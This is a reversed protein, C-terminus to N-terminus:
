GPVMGVREGVHRSPGVCKPSQRGGSTNWGDELRVAQRVMFLHRTGRNAQLGRWLERWVVRDWGPRACYERRPDGSGGRLDCEQDGRPLRVEGSSAESSFGVLAKLEGGAPREIAGRIGSLGELQSARRAPDALSFPEPERGDGGGVDSAHLAHRIALIRRTDAGVASPRQGRYRGAERRCALGDRVPRSPDLAPASRGGECPVLVLPRVSGRGVGLGVSAPNRSGASPTERPVNSHSVDHDHAM